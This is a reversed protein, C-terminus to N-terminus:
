RFHCSCKKLQPKSVVVRKLSFLRQEFKRSKLDPSTKFADESFPLAAVVLAAELLEAGGEIKLIARRAICGDEVASFKLLFEVRRLAAARLM